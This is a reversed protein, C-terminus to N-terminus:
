DHVEIAIVGAPAPDFIVRDGAKHERWDRRLVTYFIEDSDPFGAAHLDDESFTVGMAALKGAEDRRGDDEYVTAGSMDYQDPSLPPNPSEDPDSWPLALEDFDAWTYRKWSM